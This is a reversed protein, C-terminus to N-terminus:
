NGGKNIQLVNTYHILLYDIEEEPLPQKWETQVYDIEKKALPYFPSEKVEELLAPLPAEVNEGKELRSLAAPLHTFLMEAQDIEDKELHARLHVFALATLDAAKQTIVDSTLLIDLREKLESFDM